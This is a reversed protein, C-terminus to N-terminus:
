CETYSTQFTVEIILIYRLKFRFPRTVTFFYNNGQESINAINYCNLVKIKFIQSLISKLKRVCLKTTPGETTVLSKYLFYERENEDARTTRDIDSDFKLLFPRFRFTPNIWQGHSHPKNRRCCYIWYFQQILSNQTCFTSWFKVKITCHHFKDNLCNKINRLLNASRFPIKNERTSRLIKKNHAVFDGWVSESSPVLFITNNEFILGVLQLFLCKYVLTLVKRNQFRLEPFKFNSFRPICNCM